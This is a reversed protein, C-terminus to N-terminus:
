RVLFSKGGRVEEALMGLTRESLSRLMGERCVAFDAHLPCPAEANCHRIGLACQNFVLSGDTIILIQTLRTNLTTEIAFFGGHPGKTSGLVGHRVLDQMIKGLFPRPLGLTEALEQLSVKEGGVGQCAVQTAARLAYGFTKSFM